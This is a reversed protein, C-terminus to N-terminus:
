TRSGRTRPVLRQDPDRAGVGVRAARLVKGAFRYGPADQHVVRGVFNQDAVAITAVAEHISPDFPQDMADIREVGYRFLVEELQARVMRLGQVLAVDSATEAAALTRVLNDLVPLLEVILDRRKEDYVRAANQQVRAQTRELDALARALSACDPEEGDKPTSSVDNM